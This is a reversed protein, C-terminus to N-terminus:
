FPNKLLCFRMQVCVSLIFPIFDGSREANCSKVSMFQSFPPIFDFRIEVSVNHM